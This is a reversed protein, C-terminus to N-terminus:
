YNNRGCIVLLMGHIEERVCEVYLTDVIELLSGVGEGSGIYLIISRYTFPLKLDSRIGKQHAKGNESTRDRGLAKNQVSFDHRIPISIKM